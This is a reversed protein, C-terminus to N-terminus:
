SRRRRGWLFFFYFMVLWILTALIAAGVQWGSLEPVDDLALFFADEPVEIEMRDAYIHRISYSFPQGEFPRLKGLFRDLQKWDDTVQEYTRVVLRLGYPEINFYTYSLGYREYIFAKEFNPTGHVAVFTARPFREHTLEEPKRVPVPKQPQLDYRIEPVQIAIMMGVFVLAGVKLLTLWFWGKLLFM